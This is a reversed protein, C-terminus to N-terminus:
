ELAGTRQVDHRFGPWSSEGEGRFVPWQDKILHIGNNAGVVIDLMGNGDLDDVLPSSFIEEGCNIPFGEAIKGDAHFTYLNHNGSGVVIRTEGNAIRVIAASGNIEGHGLRAPWGLVCDGLANWVHLAGDTTGIVIDLVGDADIDALAPSAQIAEGIMRPFNPLESGTLRFAHLLGADDGVIIEINGDNDLDALSPSSDSDMKLHLPFGPYLEGSLHWAYLYGRSTEGRMLTAIVLLDGHWAASASAWGRMTQPWGSVANGNRDFVFMKEEGGIAILSDAIITPSSWIQSELVIPFGHANSGALRWGRLAGDNGGIFIEMAGDRDIDWVTPSSFFGGNAFQPWNPLDHLTDDLLYCNGDFSGLVIEKRGDRNFDYALPSSVTASSTARFLHNPNFQVSRCSLLSFTIAGLKFILIHNRFRHLLFEFLSIRNIM